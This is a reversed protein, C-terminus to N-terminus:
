ASKAEAAAVEGGKDRCAVLPTVFHDLATDGAVVPLGAFPFPSLRRFIRSISHGCAAERRRQAAATVIQCAASLRMTM